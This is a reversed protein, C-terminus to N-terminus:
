SSSCMCVCLFVCVYFAGDDILPAAPLLRHPAGLSQVGRGWFPPVDIDSTRSCSCCGAQQLPLRCGGFPAPVRHPAAELCVRPFFLFLSHPAGASRRRRRAGCQLARAFVCCCGAGSARARAVLCCADRHAEGCSWCRWDSNPTHSHTAVHPHREPPRWACPTIPQACTDSKSSCFCAHPVHKPTRSLCACHQIDPPPLATLSCPGTLAGCTPPENRAAAHASAIAPAGAWIMDMGRLPSLPHTRLPPAAQM